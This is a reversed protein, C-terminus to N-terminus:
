AAPQLVARAGRSGSPLPAVKWRGYAVVAALAGIALAFVANGPQAAMLQYVAACVTLLVIGVAALVTVGPRIRLVGPLILGLAGLVESVGIFYLFGQSLPIPMPLAEAPMLLKPAGSALALFLALFGQLTWLGISLKKSSSGTRSARPTSTGATRTTDV